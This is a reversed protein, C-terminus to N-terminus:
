NYVHRKAEQTSTGSGLTLDAADGLDIVLESSECVENPEDHVRAWGEANTLSDEGIGWEACSPRGHVGVVPHLETATRAPHQDRSTVFVSM